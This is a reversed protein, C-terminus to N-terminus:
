KVIEWGDIKEFDRLLKNEAKDPDIEEIKYIKINRRKMKHRSGLESYIKELAHDRSIARVEISFKRWEPFKDHSFLALGTVRYVKVERTLTKGMATSM